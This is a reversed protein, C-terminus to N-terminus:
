VWVALVAMAGYGVLLAISKACIDPGRLEKAVIELLGVYMFTGAAVATLVACSTSDALIRIISGALVGLPTVSAFLGMGCAISVRSLPSNREDRARVFAACLAFAAVAKHAVIAAFIADGLAREDAAGLAVGALFSHFCLMFFLVAATWVRSTCLLHDALHVTDPSALLGVSRAAASLDAPAPALSELGAPPSARRRMMHQAAGELLVLVIITFSACLMAFPYAGDDRGDLVSVASPLLHTFGAAIFVGAGFSSGLSLARKSESFSRHLPLLGGVLGVTFIVLAFVVNNTGM